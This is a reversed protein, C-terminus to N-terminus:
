RSGAVRWQRSGQKTGAAAGTHGITLTVLAVPFAVHVGVRGDLPTQVPLVGGPLGGPTRGRESEDESQM